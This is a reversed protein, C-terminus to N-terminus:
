CYLPIPDSFVQMLWTEKRSSISLPGVRHLVLLVKRLLHAVEITPLGELPESLRRELRM